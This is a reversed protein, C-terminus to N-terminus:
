LIVQETVYHWENNYGDDFTFLLSDWTESPEPFTKDTPENDSCWVDFCERVYAMAKDESDFLSVVPNDLHFGDTLVSYIKM